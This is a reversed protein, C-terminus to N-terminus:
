RRGKKLHKERNFLIPLLVIFFSGVLLSPFPSFGLGAPLFGFAITVLATLLAFPIQTRIHDHPEVGCAISSVITTDSFPSCHDGFVAGSFVAAVSMQLYANQVAVPMLSSATAAIPIALPFLIGMTGWSTGTSFSILSATIFILTPIFSSLNTKSVLHSLYEATGLAGLVSGIMWAAILIFVPGILSQAGDMFALTGSYFRGEPRSPFLLVAVVSSLLGSLVLVLPGANSGFAATIREVTVPWKAAPSGIFYFGLFFSLILTILPIYASYLNVKYGFTKDQKIDTSTNKIVAEDEFAKMAGLNFRRLISVFLLVLTFWCYFNYPISKVFVLYPNVDHGALRYGEKIMSLQYAIWTSVFAVCAVASSTSDVIYALKVRSVGSKEAMDKCIRGVMMSNALGDFFCLIGLGAAVVQFRKSANKSKHVLLHLMAQFGGNENLVAAFGGLVLTFLIAGIKWTSTLSPSLHQSFLTLYAQWPNGKCLILAGAFAGILLGWLARRTIVVFVLAVIVPWLSVLPDNWLAMLWTFSFISTGIIIQHKNM